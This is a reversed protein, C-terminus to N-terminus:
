QIEVAEDVSVENNLVREILTQYFTANFSSDNDIDNTKNSNNTPKQVPKNASEMARSTFGRMLVCINGQEDCMDIDLRSLRDEQQNGKAYRAWSYMTKQCPSLITLSELAFPVSPHVSPHNLDETFGAVAQLASDMMSPHLFFGEDDGSAEVVEPLQLHALEQKEGLLISKIGQHSPGYYLGMKRLVTYTRDACPHGQA